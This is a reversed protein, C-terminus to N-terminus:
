FKSKGQYYNAVFKVREKISQKLLNIWSQRQKLIRSLREHEPINFIIYVDDPLVKNYDQYMNSIKMDAKAEASSQHKNEPQHRKKNREKWLEEKAATIVDSSHTSVIKIRRRPGQQNTM